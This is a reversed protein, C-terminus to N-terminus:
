FDLANVHSKMSDFKNLKNDKYLRGLRLMTINRLWGKIIGVAVKNEDEM